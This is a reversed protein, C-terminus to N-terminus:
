QKILNRYLQVYKELVNKWNWKKYLSKLNYILKKKDKEGMNLVIKITRSISTPDSKTVISSDKVYERIPSTTIIPIDLFPIILFLSGPAGPVVLYPLVITDAIRCFYKIDDDHINKIFLVNNTLQMKQTLNRLYSYYEKGKTPHFNGVILLITNTFSKERVIKDFALILNEVGKYPALSGFFLIVKKNKIKFKNKLLRLKKQTIRKDLTEDGIAHPVVRIKNMDIKYEDHLIKAHSISQVVIASSLYSVFKLYARLFFMAIKSRKVKFLSLNTSSSIVDHQTLIFGKRRLFAFLAIISIMLPTLNGFSNYGVHCNIIETKDMKSIIRFLFDIKKFFSAKRKIRILEIPINFLKIFNQYFRFSYRGIGALNDESVLLIRLKVDKM